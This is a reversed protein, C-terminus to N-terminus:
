LLYEEQAPSVKDWDVVDITEWQLSWGSPEDVLSALAELKVGITASKSGNPKKGQPAVGPMWDTGEWSYYPFCRECQALVKKWIEPFSAPIDDENSGYRWDNKWHRKTEQVICDLHKQGEREQRCIERCISQVLQSEPTVVNTERGEMPPAQPSAVVQTSSVRDNSPPHSLAALMVPEDMDSSDIDVRGAVIHEAHEMPVPLQEEEEEEMVIPPEEDWVLPPGGDHVDHLPLAVPSPPKNPFHLVVSSSHPVSQEVVSTRRFNTAAIRQKKNPRIPAALVAAARGVTPAAKKPDNTVMSRPPVNQLRAPQVGDRVPLKDDDLPRLPELDGPAPLKAVKARRPPEAAVRAAPPKATEERRPPEAAVRAAPPKATEERRPPEAAVRAAPPKATEERRPTKLPKLAALPSAGRRPEKVLPLGRPAIIRPKGLPSVINPRATEQRPKPPPKMLGMRIRADDWAPVDGRRQRKVAEAEVVLVDMTVPVEIPMGPPYRLIRAGSVEAKVLDAAHLACYTHVVIDSFIPKKKKQHYQVVAPDDESVGPLFFVRRSHPLEGADNRGWMACGIHMASYCTENRRLSTHSRYFAALEEYDHASCQLPLRYSYEDHSGCILCKLQTQNELVSKIWETEKDNPQLKTCFVFHHIRDDKVQQQKKAAIVAASSRKGNSDDDDNSMLSRNSDDDENNYYQETPVDDGDYSGDITCGFVTGRTVFHSCLAMCCLTHGCALRHTPHYKDPLLILHKGGIGERHYVPHMAHYYDPGDDVSCFCCKTPRETVRISQRPHTRATTQTEIYKRDIVIGEITTGVAACAFCVFSHIKPKEAPNNGHNPTGYCEHHVGVRCIRCQQFTMGNKNPRGWCVDCYLQSKPPQSGAAADAPARDKPM